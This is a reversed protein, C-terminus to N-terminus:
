VFTRASAKAYWAPVTLVECLGADRWTVIQDLFTGYSTLNAVVNHSYINCDQREGLWVGIQAIQAATPPDSLTLGQMAIAEKPDIGFGTYHGGGITRRGSKYGRAILADYLRTPYFEGDAYAFTAKTCTAPVANNVTIQTGSDVSSIKTGTPVTYGYMTQGAFLESTDAMTITTTGNCTPVIGMKIALFKCSTVTAPILNNFKVQGNSLLQTVYTGAPVNTGTLRMGASIAAFSNGPVSAIATDTGNATLTGNLTANGYGVAGYSYCIHDLGADNGIAAIVQAKHADLADMAAALTAYATIPEDLPGSDLCMAWGAAKMTALEGATISSGGISGAPVYLSGVLGRAQMMPFANTYQTRVLDDFTMMIVPKHFQPLVLADCVMDEAANTGSNINFNFQKSATGITTVSTGAYNTIKFDSVKFSVWRKGRSTYDIPFLLSVGNGSDVRYDYTQGGSFFSPRVTGTSCFEDTGVDVYMALVDWTAMNTTFNKIDFVNQSTNASNGQVRMAGTGQVKRSGTHSSVVCQGSGAIAGAVSDFDHVMTYTLPNVSAGGGVVGPYLHIGLGLGLATPM